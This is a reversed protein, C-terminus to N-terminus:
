KKKQERKKGGHRGAKRQLQEKDAPLALCCVNNHLHIDCSYCYLLHSLPFFLVSVCRKSHDACISPCRTQIPTNLHKREKWALVHAEYLCIQAFCSPDDGPGHRLPPLSVSPTPFVPLHILFLIHVMHSMALHPTSLLVAPPTPPDPLSKHM